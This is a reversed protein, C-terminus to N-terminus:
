VGCARSSLDLSSGDEIAVGAISRGLHRNARFQSFRIVSTSHSSNPTLTTSQERYHDFYTGPDTTQSPPIRPACESRRVGRLGAPQLLSLHQFAAKRLKGELSRGSQMPLNFLNQKKIPYSGSTVSANSGIRSGTSVSTNRMSFSCVSSFQIPRQTRWQHRPESYVELNLWREADGIHALDNSYQKQSSSEISGM